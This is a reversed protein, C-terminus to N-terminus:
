PFKGLLRSGVPSFSLPPYPSLPTPRRCRSGRGPPSGLRNRAPSAVLRPGRQSHAASPQAAHGSTPRSKPLPPALSSPTPALRPSGRASASHVCWPRAPFREGNTSFLPLSTTGPSAAGHSSITRPAETLSPMLSRPPNPPVSRDTIPKLVPMRPLPNTPSFHSTCVARLLLSFLLLSVQTALFRLLMSTHDPDRSIPPPNAIPFLLLSTQTGLLRQGARNPGPSSMLNHSPPTSKYLFLSRPHHNGFEDDIANRGLSLPPQSLSSSVCSCCSTQSSLCKLSGTFLVHSRSRARRSSCKYIYKRAEL